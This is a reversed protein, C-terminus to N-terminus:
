KKAGNKLEMGFTLNLEELKTKIEEFSRKGFNNLKLIEEETLKVLDGITEISANKLSNSARTSLVMSSVHRGFVSEEESTQENSDNEIDTVIEEDEVPEGTFTVLSNRLIKASKILADKPAISGDTWIEIVLRDYNLIQEVRTNEVEYNVKTVPSFLSDLLITGVSDKSSKLEEALVYGKGINVEMEMELVAGNDIHAIEQEPNMIEVNPNIEIDKATVQGPKKVKLYLREPGDSNLKVRVKKLNLVIQAVDEKVGKLVAFEHLAGTVKVSTIAAGNLSSLLVRRLSNGITHGYGREFPGATFCGYFLTSTKEDLILKRLKELDPAKM